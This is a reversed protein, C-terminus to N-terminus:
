LKSMDTFSSEYAPSAQLSLSGPGSLSLHPGRDVHGRGGGRFSSLASSGVPRAPAECTVCM